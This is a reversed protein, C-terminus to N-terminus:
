SPRLEFFSNSQSSDSPKGRLTGDQDVTWNLTSNITGQPTKYEVNGILQGAIVQGTFTGNIRGRTKVDLTNPDFTLFPAKIKGTLGGSSDEKISMSMAAQDTLESGNSLPVHFFYTGRYKGGYDSDDPDPDVPPIRDGSLLQYMEIFQADIDDSTENWQDNLRGTSDSLDQLANGLPTSDPFGQSSNQNSNDLNDLSQRNAPERHSDYEFREMSEIHDLSKGLVNGLLKALGSAGLAVAAATGLAPSSALLAAGGLVLGTTKLISSATHFADEGGRTYVSKISTVVSKMFANDDRRAVRSRQISQSNPGYALAIAREISDVVTLNWSTNNSGNLVVSGTMKLSKLVGRLNAISAQVEQIRAVVPNLNVVGGTKKAAAVYDKELQQYLSSISALYIGFLKGTPYSIPPLTIPPTTQNPEITIAAADIGFGRNFNNIENGEVILNSPDVVAVVYYQTQGAQYISQSSQPLTVQTLANMSGNAALGTQTVTSLLVDQVDWSPDRSLYYAVQFAGTPQSGVNQILHSVSVPSGATVPATSTSLSGSQLDPDFGGSTLNVFFTDYDLGQALNSNDWENFEFVENFVDIVMGVTYEGSATWIPHSADPLFAFFSQDITTFGAWLSTDFRANGLWVDSFDGIFDDQSLYFSMSFGGFTAFDGGNTVRYTASIPSGPEWNGFIPQYPLDFYTGFLEATLMMREELPEITSLAPRRRLKVSNSHKMSASIVRSIFGLSSLM